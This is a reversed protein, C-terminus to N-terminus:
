ASASCALRLLAAKVTNKLLMAITLPGVGGPVPTIASAIDRVTEFDVDGQIGEPTRNIGVDIVVAGPRVFGATVLRPKGVAAVLIEAERCVSALDRTKSHAVTVTANAALLLAAMPKGVIESRGLVVASRGAIPIGSRDLLEFIGAPTCPVFRPRGQQLLGANEPHLGDVDKLPHVADLVHRSEITPPLPLQVLLGDAATDVNVKRITELLEDGSTSAPLRITESDINAAECARFKNLVYIRSAPDEGVVVVVLKPRRGSKLEFARAEAAAEERLNGALSKGSLITAAM